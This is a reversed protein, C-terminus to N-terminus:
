KNNNSLLSNSIVEIIETLKVDSARQNLVREVYRCGEANDYEPFQQFIAERLGFPFPKCAAVREKFHVVPEIRKFKTAEM